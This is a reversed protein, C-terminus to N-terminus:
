GPGRHALHLSNDRTWSRDPPWQWVSLYRPRSGTRPRLAPAGIVFEDGRVLIREYIAAVLDARESRAGAGV